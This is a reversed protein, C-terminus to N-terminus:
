EARHRFWPIWFGPGPAWARLEGTIEPRSGYEKAIGLGERELYPDLEPFPQGKVGRRLYAVWRLQEHVPATLDVCILVDVSPTREHYPFQDLSFPVDLARGIFHRRDDGWFLVHYPAFLTPPPGPASWARRDLLLLWEWNARAIRQAAQEDGADVDAQVRGIDELERRLAALERYIPWRTLVYVQPEGHNGTSRRWFVRGDMADVLPRIPLLTRGHHTRAPFRTGPTDANWAAGTRLDAVLVERGEAHIRVTKTAAEFTVVCGAHRCFPGVPVWTTVRDLLGHPLDVYAGNVEITLRTEHAAAPGVPALCALLASCVALLIRLGGQAAM